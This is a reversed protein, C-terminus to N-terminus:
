AVGGLGDSKAAAAVAAAPVEEAAERAVRRWVPEEQLTYPRTRGSSPSSPGSDTVAHRTSPLVTQLTLVLHRAALLAACALQRQHRLRARAHRGVRQVGQSSLHVWGAASRSGACIRQVSQEDVAAAVLRHKLTGHLPQNALHAAGPLRPLQLACASM